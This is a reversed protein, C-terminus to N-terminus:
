FYINLQITWVHVRDVPRRLARYMHASQVCATGAGQALLQTNSAPSHGTTADVAQSGDIVDSAAALNSPEPLLLKCPLALPTISHQYM